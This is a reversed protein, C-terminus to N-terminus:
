PHPESRLAPVPKTIARTNFTDQYRRHEPSDPYRESEPYPYGTMGHFPLPGVHDPTASNIDMEKSYGDAFLLFTRTRGQAPPPLARADFQLALEDGPAAIVFMDDSRAVLERVDGERTYRGTMVKWPSIRSVRSYDYVLPEAGDPRLEASFGRSQLVATAPDLTTTAMGGNPALRGVAVRDWYVRMSTVLRVVHEGKRLVGSLDVPITQPRGVPLGIQEIARRWQGRVDKVELAPALHTLGAQSAAVNDSSFAYDTWATLLLVGASRGQAIGAGLDLTLAHPKAYGRIPELPFGDPYTRDVAAIRATMDRGQDDVAAPTWQDSVAFLRFDKPPSTMGENPHVELNSPHDIAHLRLRDLFLAEELENTIRLELRGDRVQLQEGRIRVYETPDPTSRVGPAEWYGMEGAGLFDTVFEFREGNWTFLFPCSSPKRDLEEVLLPPAAPGSPPAPVSESQLIGSPWLVRVADASSRGGLGFLVDAPAAMPTAASTEARASLSGARLQVKAGLGLRNSVRGKLQVRQSRRDPDGRNMLAHLGGAALVVLDAAGNGDLDGVAVGRPNEPAVSSASPMARGTVDTWRAGLNRFVRGGARSWAILDLLGDNDYDVLQGTTAGRMEEPAPSARFRDRGDSLAFVSEGNPGFFVVDPFDDKNIDGIAASARGALGAEALGTERAAAVDQFTGDRNNRFLLPQRAADVVLLDLDRRNDFDTPAIAVARHCGGPGAGAPGGRADYRRLHRRRQEADPRARVGVRRRSRRRWRSRSGGM